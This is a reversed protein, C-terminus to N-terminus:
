WSSIDVGGILCVLFFFVLYSLFGVQGPKTGDLEKLTTHYEHTVWNTKEWKSATGRKYFVLFKKKGILSAGSWIEQDKGTVKWYGADTRRNFRKGNPQKLEPSSFFIWEGDTTEIGSLSVTLSVLSLGFFNLFWM